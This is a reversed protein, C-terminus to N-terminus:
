VVFGISIGAMIVGAEITGRFEVYVNTKSLVTYNCTRMSVSGKEGASINLEGGVGGCLIEQTPACGGSLIAVVHNVGLAALDGAAGKIVGGIKVSAGPSVTGAVALLDAGQVPTDVAATVVASAVWHKPERVGDSTFVLEISCGFEDQTDGVSQFFVRYQGGGVVVIGLDKLNIGPSGTATLDQNEGGHGGILLEHPGNPFAAGELICYVVSAGLQDGNGLALGIAEEIGNAWDPAFTQPNANGRM